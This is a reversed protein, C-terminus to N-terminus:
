LSNILKEPLKITEDLSKTKRAYELVAILLAKALKIRLKRM